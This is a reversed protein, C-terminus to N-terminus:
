PKPKAGPHRERFVAPFTAPEPHALPINREPLGSKKGFSRELEFEIKTSFRERMIRGIERSGGMPLSSKAKIGTTPIIYAVGGTKKPLPPLSASKREQLPMQKGQGESVNGLLPGHINSIV